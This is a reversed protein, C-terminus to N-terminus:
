VTKRPCFSPFKYNNVNEGLLMFRWLKEGLLFQAGEWQLSWRCGDLCSRLIIVWCCQCDTRRCHAEKEQALLRHMPWYEPHLVWSVAPLRSHRVWKWTQFFARYFSLLHWWSLRWCHKLLMGLTFYLREETERTGAWPLLLHWFRQLSSAEKVVRRRVLIGWAPVQGSGPHAYHYQPPRPAWPFGPCGINCSVQAREWGCINASHDGVRTVECM